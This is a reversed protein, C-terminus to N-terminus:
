HEVEIDFLETKCNVENLVLNKNELEEVNEDNIFEDALFINCMVLFIIAFLFVPFLIDNIVQVTSSIEFASCDFLFKFM